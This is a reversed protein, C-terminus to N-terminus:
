TLYVTTHVNALSSWIVPMGLGYRAASATVTAVYVGVLPWLFVGFFRWADAKKLGGGMSFIDSETPPINRTHQIYGMVVAYRIHLNQRKHRFDVGSFYNTM